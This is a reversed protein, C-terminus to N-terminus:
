LRKKKLYSINGKLETIHRTKMLRVKNSRVKGTNVSKTERKGGPKRKATGKVLVHDIMVCSKM